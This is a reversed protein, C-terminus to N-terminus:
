DKKPEEEKEEKDEKADSKAPETKSLVTSVMGRAVKVKVGDAIEVAAEPSTVVGHSGPVVPIELRLATQVANSKNGMREMSPVGPGVFNLGHHARLDAFASSESLFGIGPHLSDCGEAEAIDTLDLTLGSGDLALTDDGSGGDIRAFTTDSVTITDDGEAAYIVDAGRGKTIQKVTEM